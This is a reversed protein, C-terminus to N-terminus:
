ILNDREKKSIEEAAHMIKMLLYDKKRFESEHNFMIGSYINWDYKNSLKLVEFHNSLKGTAYPSNPLFKHNINLYLVWLHFKIMTKRRYLVSDCPM